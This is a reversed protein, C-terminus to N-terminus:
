DARPLTEKAERRLFAGRLLDRRSLPKEIREQLSPPAAEQETQAEDTTPVISPEVDETNEEGQWLRVIESERTMAEDKNAQDFIAAMVAEATAVVAAQDEFEFMPSFLSCMQYQGIDNEDGVIFEYRGSPLVHSLKDGTAMEPWIKGEGPLLMLNMFWPTILVGLWHGDWDQFGVARVELRPNLIPIDVMRERQIASFVAELDTMLRDPRGM